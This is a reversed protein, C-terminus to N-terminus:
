VLVQLGTRLALLVFWIRVITITKRARSIERTVEQRLGRQELSRRRAAEAGFAAGCEVCFEASEDNLASCSACAAMPAAPAAPATRLEAGCARCRFARDRSPVRFRKGCQPCDAPIGTTTEM